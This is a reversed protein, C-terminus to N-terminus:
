ARVCTRTCAYMGKHLVCVNVVIDVALVAVTEQPARVCACEYEHLVCVWVCVNVDDVALVM